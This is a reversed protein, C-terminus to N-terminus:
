PVNSGFWHNPLDAVRDIPGGLRSQYWGLRSYRHLAAMAFVREASVHLGMAQQVAQLVKHDGRAFFVGVSALEYDQPGVMTPEFDFLGSLRWGSPAETVLLHEVMVETHLWVRRGESLDCREMLRSLGSLMSEPCGRKRQTDELVPLRTHVWDAWDTRPVQPPAEITHLTSLTEGLQRALDLQVAQPLDDWVDALEQGPLRRMVTYTWGDLIGHDLLEPTAVPLRGQLRDLAAAEAKALSADMPAMAKVVVENGIGVLASGRQPPTLPGTHLTSALHDLATRVRDPTDMFADLDAETYIAPLMPVEPM